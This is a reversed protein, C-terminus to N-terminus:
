QDLLEELGLEDSVQRLTREYQKRVAEGSRGLEIGIEDWTRGSRRHEAIAQDEAGLRRLFEEILERTAVIQSPSEDAGTCGWNRWSMMATAVCM